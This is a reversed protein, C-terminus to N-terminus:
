SGMQKLSGHGRGPLRRSWILIDSDSAAQNLNNYDSYHNLGGAAWIPKAQEAEEDTAGTRSLENMTGVSCLRGHFKSSAGIERTSARATSPLGFCLRFYLLCLLYNQLFSNCVLEAPLLPSLPAASCDHGINKAVSPSLYAPAGFSV